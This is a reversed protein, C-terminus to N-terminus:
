VRTQNSENRLGMQGQMKERIAKLEDLSKM